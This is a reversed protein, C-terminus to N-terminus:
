HHSVSKSPAESISSEPLEVEFQYNNAPYNDRDYIIVTDQQRWRRESAVATEMEESVVATEMEESAVATEMEESVIATEMEESVVATEIEESAVATEMEEEAEKCDQENLLVNRTEETKADSGGDDTEDHVEEEKLGHNQGVLHLMLCATSNPSSFFPLVLDNLDLLRKAHYSIIGDRELEDALVFCFNMQIEEEDERDKMAPCLELVDEGLRNVAGM